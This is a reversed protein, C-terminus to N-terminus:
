PTTLKSWNDSGDTPPAIWSGGAVLLVYYTGNVYCIDGQQLNNVNQVSIQTTDVESWDPVANGNLLRLSGYTNDEPTQNKNWNGIIIDATTIYYKDNYIFTKGVPVTVGNTRADEDPWTYNVPIGPRGNNDTGPIINGSPTPPTGGGGGAVLPGLEGGHKGCRIYVSTSGPRIDYSYENGSPCMGYCIAGDDNPDGDVKSGLIDKITEKFDGGSAFKNMSYQTKIKEMEGLCATRKASEDSGGFALYMMGALAGVIILTILIEVLTFANHKNM